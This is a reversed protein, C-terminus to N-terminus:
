DTLLQERPLTERIVEGEGVRKITGHIPVALIAAGTKGAQAFVADLWPQAVCPRAADHVAVLEAEDAVAALANRVSQSRSEGGAVIQAGMFGLHGGFRGKVEDM